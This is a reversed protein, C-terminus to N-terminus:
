LKACLLWFGNSVEEERFHHRGIKACTTRGFIPEKILKTPKCWETANSPRDVSRGTFGEMGEKGFSVSMASAPRARSSEQGHWASLMDFNAKGQHISAQGHWAGFTDTNEKGGCVHVSAASAPRHSVKPNGQVSRLHTLSASKPRFSMVSATELKCVEEASHERGTRRTESAKDDPRTAGSVRGVRSVILDSIAAGNAAGYNGLSSEGASARLNPVDIQNARRHAVPLRQRNRTKRTKTQGTRYANSLDLQKRTSRDLEKGEKLLESTNVGAM